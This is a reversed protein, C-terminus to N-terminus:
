PKGQYKTEAWHGTMYMTTRVKSSKAFVSAMHCPKLLWYDLVIKRTEFPDGHFFGTLWKNATKKVSPNDEDVQEQTFEDQRGYKEVLYDPAMLAVWEYIRGM